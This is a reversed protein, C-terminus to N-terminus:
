PSPARNAGVHRRVRRAFSAARVALPVTPRTIVLGHEDSLGAARAMDPRTAVVAEICRCDHRRDHERTHRVLGYALGERELLAKFEVRSWERVHMPNTPPGRHGAGWMRERDPTSIVAVASHELAAVIAELLRDPRVLHEIVDACVIVAGELESPSLPLATDSDADFRRWTANPFRDTCSELNTGFDLGVARRSGAARVLKDGNGAGVDIIAPADIRAALRAADGYVDPQYILGASDAFQDDYDPRERSTYDDPLFFSDAM